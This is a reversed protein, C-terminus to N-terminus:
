ASIKECSLCIIEQNTGHIELVKRSQASQHLGDINQTIVGLVKGLRELEAMALHGSNPKALQHQDYFEKKRRWFERRSDESELFEQITVPQYRQWVGGQSRYDSIGSETSIGAGTFFVIRSSDAIIKKLEGIEYSFDSNM